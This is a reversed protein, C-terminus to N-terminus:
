GEGGWEEEDMSLKKRRVKKTRRIPAQENESVVAAREHKKGNAMLAEIEGVTRIGGRAGMGTCNLAAAACGFELQRQLPWGQLLGYIFGAHFTDGAGITDVVKVRYAAAYHFKDGDWALM